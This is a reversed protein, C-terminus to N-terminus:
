EDLADAARNIAAALARATAADLAMWSVDTGFELRVLKRKHDPVVAMQLDGRDNKGIKGQSYTGLAGLRPRNM